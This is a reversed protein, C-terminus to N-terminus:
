SAAWPPVGCARRKALTARRPTQSTPRPALSSTRALIRVRSAAIGHTPDTPVIPNRGRVAYGCRDFARCQLPVITSPQASISRAERQFRAIRDPDSALSAPLVKIAVDRDLKTDTARYVEGMGGVGIQAAIEYPGLRTGRHRTVRRLRRFLNTIQHTGYDPRELTIVLQQNGVRDHPLRDQGPVSSQDGPLEITRSALSSLWSQLAWSCGQM